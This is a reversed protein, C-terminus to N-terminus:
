SSLPRSLAARTHARLATKVADRRGHAFDDWGLLALANTRNILFATVPSLAVITRLRTEVADPDSGILPGILRSIAAHLPRTVQDRILPFAPGGNDAQGKGMFRSWGAVDESTLTFDILADLIACVGDLMRDPDGSAVAGDVAALAPVLAQSIREIIFCACARHLGEKGDFYYQLAPPNVGAADAIQRTSARAYGEEGFVRMAATIIRGRTEEGRAYGGGDPRRRPASAPPAQMEPAPIPSIDTMRDNRKAGESWSRYWKVFMNWISCM